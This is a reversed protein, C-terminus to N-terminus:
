LLGQSRLAAEIMQLVMDQNEPPVLRFLRLLADESKNLGSEFDLATKEKGNKGMLYDISVGFYKAIKLLTETSLGQKRGMKLDTLSARSAGSEKCMTTINVDREVCLEEIRKYLNSLMFVRETHLTGFKRLCM